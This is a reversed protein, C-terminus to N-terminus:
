GGCHNTDHARAVTSAFEAVSEAESRRSHREDFNLMDARNDFLVKCNQVYYETREGDIANM